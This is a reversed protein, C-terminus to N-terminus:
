ACRATLRLGSGHAPVLGHPVALAVRVPFVQRVVAAFGFRAPTFQAVKCEHTYTM